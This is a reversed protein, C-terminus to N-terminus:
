EKYVVADGSVKQKEIKPEGSYRIKGAGSATLVVVSSKGFDVKSAGSAEARVKGSTDLEAANLSSAGSAALTANLATGKLKIRSAGDANCRLERGEVNVRMKSAGSVNLDLNSRNSVVPEDSDLAAAGSLDIRDLHRYHVIFHLRGIRTFRGNLRLRLTDDICKIDLKDLMDDHTEIEIFETESHKLTVTAAHSVDLKSFSGPERTKKVIPGVPTYAADLFFGPFFPPRRAHVFVYLKHSALGALILIAIVVLPHMRHKM